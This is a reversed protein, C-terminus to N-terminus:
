MNSIPMEAGKTNVTVEDFASIRQRSVELAGEANHRHNALNCFKLIWTM